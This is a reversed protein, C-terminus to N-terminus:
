TSGSRNWKSVDSEVGGMCSDYDDFLAMSGEHIDLGDVSASVEDRGITVLTQGLHNVEM